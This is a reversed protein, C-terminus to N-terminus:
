IIKETKLTIDHCTHVRYPEKSYLEVFDMARAPDVFTGTPRKQQINAATYCEDGALVHIMEGFTVEVISSGKAHGGWELVRIQPALQHEKEFLAVSFDEPIYKKGKEWAAKSIHVAANCFHKLAEIHDHHAHTIVVDTVEEALVGIDQLALAPSRFDKMVFGPMTDCGADVLINRGATRICYICFTIPVSRDERGDPFVTNEPLVSEGYKVCYLALEERHAM